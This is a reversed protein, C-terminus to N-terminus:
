KLGSGVIDRVRTKMRLIGSSVTGLQIGLVRAISKYSPHLTLRGYRDLLRRQRKIEERAGADDGERELRMIKGYVDYLAITLDRKRAYRRALTCRIGDIRELVDRPSTGLHISLFLM